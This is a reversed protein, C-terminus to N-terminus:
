TLAPKLGAGQRKEMADFLRQQRAVVAEREAVSLAEWLARPYALTWAKRRAVTVYNPNRRRSM